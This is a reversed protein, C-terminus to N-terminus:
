WALQCFQASGHGGYRHQAGDEFPSGPEVGAYGLLAEASVALELSIALQDIEGVARECLGSGIAGLGGRQVGCDALV